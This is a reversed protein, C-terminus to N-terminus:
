DEGTKGIWSAHLNRLVNIDDSITNNSDGIHQKNLISEVMEICFDLSADNGKGQAEQFIDLETRITNLQDYDIGYLDSM